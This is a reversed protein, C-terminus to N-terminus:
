CARLAVCLPRKKRSLIWIRWTFLGRVITDSTTTIIMGANFSWPITELAFLNGFNTVAYWYITYAVTIIHLTDLSFLIAVSSKLVRSDPGCHNFYMFTQLSTIGFLGTACLCGIVGAGLTSDLSM